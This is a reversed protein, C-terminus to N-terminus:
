DVPRLHGTGVEYVFAHVPVRQLAPHTRLIGAQERLTAVLDEFAGFVLDTENGTSQRVLARLGEETAGDLGCRTHGVIVIEQTGLLQQSVVLSRVVDETALAGANRIIHADGVRLGLADEVEIRADMCAVIALASLPAATLRSRDFVEAFRENEELM